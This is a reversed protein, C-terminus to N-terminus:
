APIEPKEDSRHHERHDSPEMVEIGDLTNLWPIHSKHHIHKSDLEDLKDVKLTALLRHVSVTRTSEGDKATWKVYGGDRTRYTAYEERPRGCSRTEIELKDMWNSITSNGCGAIKAIEYQNRGLEHYQYELLEKDQYKKETAENSVVTNTRTQTTSM